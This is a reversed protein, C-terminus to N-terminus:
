PILAIQWLRVSLLPSDNWYIQSIVHNEYKAMDERLWSVTLCGSYYVILVSPIDTGRFAFRLDHVQRFDYLKDLILSYTADDLEEPLAEYFNDIAEALCTAEKLFSPPLDIIRAVLEKLWIDVEVESHHQTFIQSDFSNLDDSIYADILDESTQFGLKQNQVKRLIFNKM